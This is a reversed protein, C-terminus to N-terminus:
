DDSSAAITGWEGRHYTLPDAEPNLVEAAEVRGVYITHDGAELRDSLSCDVFALDGGFVPAGTVPADTAEALPDGEDTMDAFYEGIGRQDRALINVCFEEHDGDALRRHADTDHDLSILVLPPDISVSAFASVTIGHPPDGPFTVVTVGAAFQGLAARFQAGDVM